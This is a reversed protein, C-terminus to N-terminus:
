VHGSDGLLAIHQEGLAVQTFADFSPPRVTTSKETVVSFVFVAGDNLLFAIHVGHLDTAAAM